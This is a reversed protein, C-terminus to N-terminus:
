RKRIVAVLNMLLHDNKTKFSTFHLLARVLRIKTERDDKFIQECDTVKIQLNEDLTKQQKQLIDISNSQNIAQELTQRKHRFQGALLNVDEIVADNGVFASTNSDRLKFTFYGDKLLDLYREQFSFQHFLLQILLPGYQTCSSIMAFHVSDKLAATRLDWNRTREATYHSIINEAANLLDVNKQFM